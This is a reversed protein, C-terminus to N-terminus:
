KAESIKRLLGRPGTVVPADPGDIKILNAVPDDELRLFKLGQFTIEGKKERELNKELQQEVYELLPQEISKPPTSHILNVTGDAGIGILGVHGCFKGGSKTARIVNVCDGDRLRAVVDKILRAPVYTTSYSQNPVDMDVNFSRKFFARRNINETVTDTRGAAIEPTIDRILWANNENWDALTYHNRTVASIEGGKYRIRQLMAFFSQWDYSLAMAYVHEAFVVCDGNELCYLPQGDHIEFPYEGLLHLKYAQGLNRRAISVVRQRLDPVERRMQAVFRGTETPTMEYVTKAEFPKATATTSVPPVAAASPVASTETVSQLGRSQCGLALLGLGAQLILKNM